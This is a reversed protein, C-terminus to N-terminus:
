SGDVLAYCFADIATSEDKAVMGLILLREEALRLRVAPWERTNELGRM